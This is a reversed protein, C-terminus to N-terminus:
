SRWRVMFCVTVEEMDDDQGGMRKARSQLLDGENFDINLATDYDQVPTNNGTGTLTSLGTYKVGDVYARVDVIANMGDQAQSTVGVITGNYPAIYGAKAGINSGVGLWTNAKIKKHNYVLPFVTGSLVKGRDPDNYMPMTQGGVSQLKNVGVSDWAGNIYLYLGDEITAHGKLVFLEGEQPTPFDAGSPAGLNDIFGGDTLRLRGNVKM